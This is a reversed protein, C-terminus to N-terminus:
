YDAVADGLSEIFVKPIDGNKYSIRYYKYINIAFFHVWYFAHCSSGGRVAIIDGYAATLEHSFVPIRSTFTKM